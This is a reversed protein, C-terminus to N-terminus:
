DGKKDEEQPALEKMILAPAKAKQAPTLQLGDLVRTIIQYIAEATQATIAAQAQAADAQRQENLDLGFLKARRESIRVARDVAALDRNQTAQAWVITHLRDLRSNELERLQEASASTEEALETLARKVATYAATRSGYGLRKAIEEYTLGAKRLELAEAQRQKAKLQFASTANRQRGM